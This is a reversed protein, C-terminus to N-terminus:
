IGGDAPLTAGSVFGSLSGAFFLVANAIDEPRGLRGLAALSEYRARAAPDLHGALDTEIIGPAIVNVRVGKRGLEKALSRSLGVLGAKSATYHARGPMGVMALGSGINVIAAGEGLLPLAHQVILHVATLNTFILRDWEGQELQAYPVQSMAGANNVIIDIGGLTEGAAAVLEAAGEPTSLDAAVLRHNGGLAKLDRELGAAAESHQRHGAVVHVGERALALVAARGIGRSGGTVLARKGTLGLDM